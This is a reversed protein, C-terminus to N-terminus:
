RFSPLRSILHWFVAVVFLVGAGGAAMIVATM